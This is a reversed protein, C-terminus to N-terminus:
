IWDFYSFCCEFVTDHKWRKGGAVLFAVAGDAFLAKLEIFAKGLTPNCIDDDSINSRYCGEARRWLKKLLFLNCRKLAKGVCAMFMITLEADLKEM